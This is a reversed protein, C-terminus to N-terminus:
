VCIQEVQEKYIISSSFILVSFSADLRSIGAASLITWSNALILLCNASINDKFCDPM